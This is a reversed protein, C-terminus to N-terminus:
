ATAEQAIRLRVLDLGDYNRKCTGCRAGGPRKETAPRERVPGGCRRGAVLDTCEAIVELPADNAARALQNRLTRVDDLAHSLWDTGALWPAALLLLTIADGVTRPKSAPLWLEDDHDVEHWVRFALDALVAPVSLAPDPEDDPRDIRGAGNEAQHGNAKSRPDLMVLVHDAAPSRSEYGAASPGTALTPRMPTVVRLYHDLERLLARLHEVCEDCAYNGGTPTRDCTDVICATM